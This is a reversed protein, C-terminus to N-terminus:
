EKPGMIRELDSVLQELEHCESCLESYSEKLSEPLGDGHKELTRMDNLLDDMISFARSIRTLLYQEM